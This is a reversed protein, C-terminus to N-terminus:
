CDIKKSEIRYTLGNGPIDLEFEFHPSEKPVVILQDFKIQHFKYVNIEYRLKNIKRLEKILVVNLDYVLKNHQEINEVIKEAKARVKKQDLSEYLKSGNKELWYIKAKKM